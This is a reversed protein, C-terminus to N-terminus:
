NNNNGNDNNGSDNGGTNQTPDNVRNNCSTISVVFMICIFLISLLKKINM